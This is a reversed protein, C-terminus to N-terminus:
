VLGNGQFAEKGGPAGGVDSRELVLAFRATAEKAADCLLSLVLLVKHGPSSLVAIDHQVQEGIIATVQQNDRVFM